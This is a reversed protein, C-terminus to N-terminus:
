KSLLHGFIEQAKEMFLPKKLQFEESEVGTFYKVGARRYGKARISDSLPVDERASQREYAHSHITQGEKTLFWNIFLRAAAPHPAKEMYAIFGEGGSLYDGEAMSISRIPAGAEIFPTFHTDGVAISIPYKGRSVWEAQQRQDRLIVPEQKALEKMYDFGIMNGGYVSFWQLGNGSQVPDFLVIRGKWKPNLFDPYSKIEEEKVMSTNVKIPGAPALSVNYILNDKDIFRLKNEYWANMDLVEPLSLLPKLSQFAGAPKLNNIMTSSGGMYVDSAFIGARRERILKEAIESGRGSTFEISIGFRKKFEDSLAERVSPNISSYLALKGEKQADRVTKAWETEWSQPESQPPPIVAPKQEKDVVKPSCSLLLMVTILGTFVAMFCRMM